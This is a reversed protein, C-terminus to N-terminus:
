NLGRKKKNLENLLAVADDLKKKEAARTATCNVMSAISGVAFGLVSADLTKAFSRSVHFRHAALMGALSTGWLISSRFCPQQVLATLTAQPDNTFTTLTEMVRNPKDQDPEPQNSTM